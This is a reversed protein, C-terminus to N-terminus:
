PIIAPSITISRWRSGGAAGIWGLPGQDGGRPNSDSAVIGYQAYAVAPTYGPTVKTWVLSCCFRRDESYDGSLFISVGDAPEWLLKLGGGPDLQGDVDKPQFPSRNAVIDDREKILASRACACPIPLLCTRSWM